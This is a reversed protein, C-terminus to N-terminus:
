ATRLDEALNRSREGRAKRLYLHHEQLGLCFGVGKLVCEFEMLLLYKWECYAEM